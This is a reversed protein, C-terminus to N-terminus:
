KLYVDSFDIPDIIGDVLWQGNDAAVVRLPLQVTHFTDSSKPNAGFSAKVTVLIDFRDGMEVKDADVVGDSHIDLVMTSNYPSTVPPNPTFASTVYGTIQGNNKPVLWANAFNTAMVALTSKMDVNDTFVTNVGIPISVAAVPQPWAILQYSGAREVFNMRYYARKPKEGTSVLTASIIYTWEGTDRQGESGIWDVSVVNLDSVRPPFKAHLVGDAGPASSCAAMVDQASLLWAQLCRQAWYGANAESKIATYTDERTLPRTLVLLILLVACLFIAVPGSAAMVWFARRAVKDQVRINSLSGARKILGM